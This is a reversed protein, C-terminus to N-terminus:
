NGPEYYATALVQVHDLREGSKVARSIAISLRPAKRNRFITTIMGDRSEDGEEEWRGTFEASGLVHEVIPQLDEDGGGTIHCMPLRHSVVLFYGATLTSNIRWYINGKRFAEPPQAVDPIRDVLGMKDGLGVADVFPQLTDIWSEPQLIWEECGRLAGAFGAEMPSGPSGANAPSALCCAALASLSIPRIM